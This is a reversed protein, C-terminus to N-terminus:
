RAINELERAMSLAVAYDTEDAFTLYVLRAAALAIAKDNETAGGSIAICIGLVQKEGFHTQKKSKRIVIPIYIAGQRKQRGRGDFERPMSESCNSEIASLRETSDAACQAAKKAATVKTAAVGECDGLNRGGVILETSGGSVIPACYSVSMGQPCGTWDAMESSLPTLNVTIAGTKFEFKRAEIRCTTVISLLLGEKKIQMM